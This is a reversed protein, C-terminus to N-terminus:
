VGAGVAVRSSSARSIRTTQFSPARDGAIWRRQKDEAVRAVIGSGAFLDAVVDDEDTAVDVALERNAPLM